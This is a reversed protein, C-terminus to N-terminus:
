ADDTRRRKRYGIVRYNYKTGPVREIHGTDILTKRAFKVSVDTVNLRSAIMHAPIYLVGAEDMADLMVAFVLKQLAGIRCDTLVKEPIYLGRKVDAM